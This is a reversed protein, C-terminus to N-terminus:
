KYYLESEMFVSVAVKNDVVELGALEVQAAYCINSDSDYKYANCGKTKKCSLSCDTVSHQTTQIQLSQEWITQSIAGRKEFLRQGLCLPTLLCIVVLCQHLRMGGVTKLM